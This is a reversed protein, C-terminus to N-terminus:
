SCARRIASRLQRVSVPRELFDTAELRAIEVAIRFASHPGLVVVPIDNGLRRIERILHLTATEDKDATLILCRGPGGPLAAIQAADDNAYTVSDVLDHTLASALWARDHTDAVVVYASTPMSKSLLARKKVCPCRQCWLSRAM